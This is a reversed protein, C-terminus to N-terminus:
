FWLYDVSSVKSEATYEDYEETRYDNLMLCALDDRTTKMVTTASLVIWPDGPLECSLVETKKNQFCTQWGVGNNPKSNYEIGISTLLDRNVNLLAVVQGRAEKILERDGFTINHLVCDSPLCFDDVSTTFSLPTAPTDLPTDPSDLESSPTNPGKSKKSLGLAKRCKKRLKKLM